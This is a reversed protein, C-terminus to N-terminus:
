SKQWFVRLNESSERIRRLACGTRSNGSSPVLSGFDRCYAVSTDGQPSSLVGCYPPEQALRLSTSLPLTQQQATQEEPPIITAHDTSPRSSSSEQGKKQM